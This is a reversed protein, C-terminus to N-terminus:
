SSYCVDVVFINLVILITLLLLLQPQPQPQICSFGIWDINTISLYSLFV